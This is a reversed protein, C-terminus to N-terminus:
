LLSRGGDIPLTVGTIYASADSALFLVPGAIDHVNGLRELPVRSLELDYFEKSSFAKQNMDTLIYGPALANVRIGYKAWEAAQYKTMHIVGAKSIGYISLLPDAVRGLMSAMNIISGKISKGAMAKAAAKSLFYAGKLNIDLIRDWDEEEQEFIPKKNAVGSNNILIDIRGFKDMCFDVPRDVERVRSVDMPFPYADIGRKSLNEAVRDCDAATRSVIVLNVGSDALAEAAGLGLGKTAGTVVAAKGKLDSYNSSM